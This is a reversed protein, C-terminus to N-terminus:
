KRKQFSKKYDYGSRYKKTATSDTTTQQASIMGSFFLGAILIQAKM